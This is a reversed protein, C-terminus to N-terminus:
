RCYKGSHSDWMTCPVGQKEKRLCFRLHCHTTAVFNRSQLMQRLRSLLDTEFSWPCSNYLNKITCLNEFMSLSMHIGFLQGSFMDFYSNRCWATLHRSVNSLLPATERSLDPTQRGPHRRVPSLPPSPTIRAMPFISLWVRCWTFDDSFAHFHYHTLGMYVTCCVKYQPPSYKHSFYISSSAPCPFVPTIVDNNNNNNNNNNSNTTTTTTTTIIYNNTAAALMDTKYDCKNAIQLLVNLFSHVFKYFSM